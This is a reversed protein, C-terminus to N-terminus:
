QLILMTSLISIGSNENTIAVAGEQVTATGVQVWEHDNYSANYIILETGVDLTTNWEFSLPTEMHTEFPGFYWAGVINEAPITNLPLGLAIPDISVSSISTESYSEPITINLGNGADFIMEGQIDTNINTFQPVIVPQALQILTNDETINIFSLPTAITDDTPTTVIDFSYNFGTRLIGEPYCFGNEGWSAVYCTEENCMQVRVHGQASSGDEFIVQGEMRNGTAGDVPACPDTIETDTDTATDIITTSTDTEKESGCGWLTLLISTM